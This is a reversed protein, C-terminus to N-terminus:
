GKRKYWRAFVDRLFATTEREDTMASKLLVIVHGDDALIVFQSVTEVCLRTRAYDVTRRFSGGKVTFQDATFRVSCESFLAEYVAFDNEATRRVRNPLVTCWLLILGLGVLISVAGTIYYSLWQANLVAIYVARVGFVILAASLVLMPLTYRLVGKHKAAILQAEIYAEKSVTQTFSSPAIM